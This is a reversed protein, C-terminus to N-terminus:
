HCSPTVTLHDLVLRKLEQRFTKRKQLLLDVGDGLHCAEDLRCIEKFLLLDSNSHLRDACNVSVWGTASISSLSGVVGLGYISLGVSLGVRRWSDSAVVVVICVCQVVVVAARHFQGSLRLAFAVRLNIM